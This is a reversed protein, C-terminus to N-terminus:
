GGAEHEGHSSSVSTANEVAPAIGSPKWFGHYFAFTGIGVVLASHGWRTWDLEGQLATTVVSAVVCSVCTILVRVFNPLHPQQALAIVLPLLYAVLGSWMELDTM